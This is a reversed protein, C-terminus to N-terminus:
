LLYQLAGIQFSPLHPLIYLGKESVICIALEDLLQMFIKSLVDLM